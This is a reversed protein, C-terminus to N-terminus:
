GTPTLLNEIAYTGIQKGQTNGALSDCRFHIGLYLRSM